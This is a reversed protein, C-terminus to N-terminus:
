TSNGPNATATTVRAAPDYPRSHASQRKSGAARFYSATDLQNKSIACRM